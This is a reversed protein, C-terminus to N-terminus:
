GAVAPSGRPRDSRCGVVEGHQSSNHKWKRRAGPIKIQPINKYLKKGSKNSNNNKTINIFFIIINIKKQNKNEM